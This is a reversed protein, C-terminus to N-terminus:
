VAAQSSLELEVAATTLKCDAFTHVYYIPRRLYTGASKERSLDAALSPVTSLTVRGFPVAHARHVHGMLLGVLADHRELYKRLLVAEAAKRFQLRPTDALEVPPHHAFVLTPKGNVAALLERLHEARASCFGGLGGLETDRYQTDIAIIQLAGLDVFYQAFGCATDLYGDRAFAEFYPQRRDRNGITTYLPAKLRVMEARAAAYDAATADHSIDGSHIVIDVPQALANISDVARALDEVRSRVDANAAQIHTDSIHAIRM